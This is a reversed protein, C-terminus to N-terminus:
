KRLDATKGVSWVFRWVMLRGGGRCPSVLVKATIKCPPFFDTVSSSWPSRMKNEVTSFHASVAYSSRRESLCKYVSRAVQAARIPLSGHGEPTWGTTVPLTAMLSQMAWPEMEELYSLDTKRVKNRPGTYHCLTHQSFNNPMNRAARM